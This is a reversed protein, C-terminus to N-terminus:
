RMIALSIVGFFTRTIRDRLNIGSSLRQIINVAQQGVVANLGSQWAEEHSTTTCHESRRRHLKMQSQALAVPCVLYQACLKENLFEVFGLLDPLEGSWLTYIYM